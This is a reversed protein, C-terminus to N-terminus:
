AEQTTTPTTSVMEIPTDPRVLLSGNVTEDGVMFWEIAWSGLRTRYSATVACDKLEEGDADAAMREHRVVAGVRVNEATDSM